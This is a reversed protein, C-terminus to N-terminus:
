KGEEYVVEKEYAEMEDDEMKYAEQEMQYVQDPSMGLAFGKTAREYHTQKVLPHVTPCESSPHEQHGDCFYCKKFCRGPEHAGICKDCFFLQTRKGGRRGGRHRGPHDQDNPM